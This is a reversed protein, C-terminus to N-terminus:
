KRRRLLAAIGGLALLSLTAPEPVGPAVIWPSTLQGGGTYHALSVTGYPGLDSVIRVTALLNWTEADGGFVFGPGPYPGADGGGLGLDDENGDGDLDRELGAFIAFCVDVDTATEPSTNALPNTALDIAYDSPVHFPNAFGEATAYDPDVNWYEADAQPISPLVIWTDTALDGYSPQYGTRRVAGPDYWPAGGNNGTIGNATWYEHLELGSGTDYMNLFNDEVTSANGDNFDFCMDFPTQPWQYSGWEYGRAERGSIDYQYQWQGGGLDTVFVELKLGDGVGVTPTAQATAALGAVALVAMILALKKM